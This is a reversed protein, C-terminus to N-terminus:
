QFDTEFEYMGKMGNVRNILKRVQVIGYICSALIILANFAHHLAFLSRMISPNMLIFLCSALWVTLSCLAVLNGKIYIAASLSLASIFTFPAFWLMTLDWWQSHDALRIFIFSSLSNLLISYVGVIVLKSLLISAANYLCSAELELVREDRNRFVEILGLIFPTPSLLFLAFEPKIQVGQWISLVGILYLIISAIWFFPSMVSLEALSLRLLRAPRHMWHTKPASRSILHFRAVEVTAHIQDPDPYKVEYKLLTARLKIWEPETLDAPEENPFTNRRKM